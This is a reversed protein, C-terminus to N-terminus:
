NHEYNSTGMTPEIPKEFRLSYDIEGMTTIEGL